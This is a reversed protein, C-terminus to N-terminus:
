REESPPSAPVPWEVILQLLEQGSEFRRKEGTRLLEALGIIPARGEASRALRLMFYEFHDPSSEVPTGYNTGADVSGAPGCTATLGVTLGTGPM